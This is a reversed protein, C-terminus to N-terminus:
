PHFSWAPLSAPKRVLLASLGQSLTWQWRWSSSRRWWTMPHFVTILRADVYPKIFEPIPNYLMIAAFVAEAPKLVHGHHSPCLRVDWPRAILRQDKLWRGSWTSTRKGPVWVSYESSLSSLCPMSCPFLTPKPRTKDLQGWENEWGTFIHQVGSRVAVHKLLFTYIRVAGSENRGKCLLNANLNAINNNCCRFTLNGVCGEHHCKRSQINSKTVEIDLFTRWCMEPSNMKWKRCVFPSPTNPCHLERTLGLWPCKLSYLVPASLQSYLETSLRCGCRDSCERAVGEGLAATPGAAAWLVM